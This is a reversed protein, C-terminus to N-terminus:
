RRSRRRVVGGLAALGALMTAYTGPEPVASIEIM